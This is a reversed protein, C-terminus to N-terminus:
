LWQNHPRARRHRDAIFIYCLSRFFFLFNAFFFHFLFRSFIGSFRAMGISLTLTKVPNLFYVRVGVQTPYVWYRAPHGLGRSIGVVFWPKAQSPEGLKTLGNSLQVSSFWASGHCCWGSLRCM